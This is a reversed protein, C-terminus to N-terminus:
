KLGKLKQILRERIEPARFRPDAAVVDLVISLATGGMTLSSALAFVEDFDTEDIVNVSAALPASDTRQETVMAILAPNDELQRLLSLVSSRLRGSGDKSSIAAVLPHERNIRLLGEEM